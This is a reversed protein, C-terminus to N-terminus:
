LKKERLGLSAYFGEIVEANNKGLDVIVQPSSCGQQDM